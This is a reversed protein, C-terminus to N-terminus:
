PFNAELPDLRATLEDIICDAKSCTATLALIGQLVQQMFGVVGLGIGLPDGM